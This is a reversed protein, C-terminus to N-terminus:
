SEARDIKLEVEAIRARWRAYKAINRINPANISPNFFVRPIRAIVHFYLYLASLKHRALGNTFKKM